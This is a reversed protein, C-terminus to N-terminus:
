HRELHPSLPLASTPVAPPKAVAVIDGSVEETEPITFNVPFGLFTRPETEVKTVNQVLSQSEQIGGRPILKAPNENEKEKEKERADRTCTGPM